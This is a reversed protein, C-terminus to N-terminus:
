PSLGMARLWLPARGLSARAVQDFPQDVQWDVVRIGAQRLKRLLLERELRAFRAALEVARTEGLVRREFGIPDPSIVLIQYGRARLRVLPQVDDASLPSVLVLQSHAPFQRAPIHDLQDFVMSEGLEAGALAHLIRERQVKGYGPFTWDLFGGYLLLGVRNGDNLFAEALAATAEVAHEFLSDDHSQVESRQRVDLILGVDAVREQEFENTFFSEPHRANARWNIWRLPDGPQYERVEFFEVGPGAQRAPILGSYVRTQRPRIPVRQLKPVRPLVLLRGPAPFTAQRRSFGLRDSATARVGTFHYSGRRGRLTYTLEITEGPALSTLIRSEGEIPPPAPQVLDELLVEELRPGVNTVSLQVVVPTDPHVRDDSLSRSARLEIDEPGLLLGAGLYVVLPIALALLAGNRIGLGLLVLSYALVGLLLRRM